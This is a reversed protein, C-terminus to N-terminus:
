LKKQKAKKNLNQPYEVKSNLYKVVILLLILFVITLIMYSFPFKSSNKSKIDAKQKVSDDLKNYDIQIKTQFSKFKEENVLNDNTKNESNLDILSTEISNSLVNILEKGLKDNTYNSYNESEIIFELYESNSIQSLFVKCDNKMYFVLKDFNTAKLKTKTEKNDSTNVSISSLKKSLVELNEEIYMSIFYLCATEVENDVIEKNYNNYDDIHSKVENNSLIIKDLEPISFEIDKLDNNKNSYIAFSTLFLFIYLMITNM